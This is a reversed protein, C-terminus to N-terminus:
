EGDGDRKEGIKWREKKRQKIMIISVSVAIHARPNIRANVQRVSLDTALQSTVHSGADGERRFTGEWFATAKSM